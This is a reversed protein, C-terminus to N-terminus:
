NTNAEDILDGYVTENKWCGKAEHWTCYKNFFKDEGENMIKDEVLPVLWEDVNSYSQGSIECAFMQFPAGNLLRFWDHKLEIGGGMTIPVPAISEMQVIIPSPKDGFTEPEINIPEPVNETM